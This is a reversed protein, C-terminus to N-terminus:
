LITPPAMHASPKPTPAATPLPNPSPGRGGKLSWPDAGKGKGDAKGKGKGKGNPIGHRQFFGNYPEPQGPHWRRCDEFRCSDHYKCGQNPYGGRFEKKKEM